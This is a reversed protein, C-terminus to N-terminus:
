HSHGSSGSGMPGGNASVIGISAPMHGATQVTAVITETMTDIISISTCGPGHDATTSCDGGNPFVAHIGDETIEGNRHDAGVGVTVFRVDTGDKQLGTMPDLDVVAILNNLSTGSTRGPIWAKMETMMVGGHNMEM